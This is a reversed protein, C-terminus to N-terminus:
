AEGRHFGFVETEVRMAVQLADVAVVLERLPGLPLHAIQRPALDRRDGLVGARRLLERPPAVEPAGHDRLLQLGVLERDLHRRLEERDRGVM